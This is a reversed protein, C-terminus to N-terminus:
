ERNAEERIQATDIENLVQVAHSKVSAEVYESDRLAEIVPILRKHESVKATVALLQEQVVMSRETRAVDALAKVANDRADGVDEGTATALAALVWIARYRVAEIEGEVATRAAANFVSKDGLEALALAVDMVDGVKASNLHPLQDLEVGSTLAKYDSTMRGIGSKDGLKTLLRCADVRVQLHKDNLFRQLTPIAKDAQKEVLAELAVQRVPYSSAMTAVLIQEVTQAPYGMSELRESPPPVVKDALSSTACVLVSLLLWNLHRM